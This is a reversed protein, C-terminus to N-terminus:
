PSEGGELAVLKYGYGLSGKATPYREVRSPFVDKSGPDMREEIQRCVYPSAWYENGDGDLVLYKAGYRTKVGRSSVLIAKNQWADEMSGAKPRSTTNPTNPTTAAGHSPTVGAAQYANMARSLFLKSSM